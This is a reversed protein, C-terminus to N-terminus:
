FPAEEHSRGVGIESATVVQRSRETDSGEPTWTSTRLTGLIVVRDGKSLSDLINPLNRAIGSASCRFSALSL